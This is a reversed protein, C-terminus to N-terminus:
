PMIGQVVQTTSVNMLDVLLKPCIGILIIVILLPVIALLERKNIDTLQEWRPNLERWFVREMMWLLYVATIVVGSTSLIALLKFGPFTSVFTGMLCVFEGIFGALGPLGLSALVAVTMMGTYIPMRNWLGSFEDINRTHARDYIVGVLMFLSGTVAGHTFMQVVAGNIGTVTLAGMAILCFGMHSISSYAIMKKLDNQAMATCAGYIINIVGLVAFPYAFYIAADPFIPFSVRLFGYIGMKLLIGALIVSAATPAEVHADPLWTHFPWIPVKVAFGIFFLFFMLNQFDRAFSCTKSLELIDMTHPSSTFYVCLIGILMILSGIVTYLVFKIAAYKRRPGGWVGILFYMPLLVAEWFIYFLFLDMAVFVGLMGTELILFLIFYEKVRKTISCSILVSLFTLLATLLFISISLGDLGVHYHINFVPIWLIKEVFQLDAIKPNFNVYVMGALVLPIFSFVLALGKVTKEMEKPTCLIFMGGILPIFIMWSLIPFDM